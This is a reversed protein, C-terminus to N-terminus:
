SNTGFDIINPHNRQGGEWEAKGVSHVYITIHVERTNTGLEHDDKQFKPSLQEKELPEDGMERM